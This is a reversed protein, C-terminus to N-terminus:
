LKEIHAQCCKNDIVREPEAASQTQKQADQHSLPESGMFCPDRDEKTLRQSTDPSTPTSEGAHSVFFYTGNGTKHRVAIGLSSKKCFPLLLWTHILWSPEPIQLVLPM